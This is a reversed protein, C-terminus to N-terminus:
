VSNKEAVTESLTLNNARLNALFGIMIVLLFLSKGLLVSCKKKSTFEEHCFFCFKIAKRESFLSSETRTKALVFLLTSSILFVRRSFPKCTSQIWLSRGCFLLVLINLLKREFLIEKNIAVSTAARPNSM